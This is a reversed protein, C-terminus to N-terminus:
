ELERSIITSLAKSADELSTYKEILYKNRNILYEAIMLDRTPHGGEVDILDVIQDIKLM